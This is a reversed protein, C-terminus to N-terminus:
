AETPLLLFFFIYQVYIIIFIKGLNEEGSYAAAIGHPTAESLFFSGTASGEAESLSTSTKLMLSTELSVRSEVLYLVM